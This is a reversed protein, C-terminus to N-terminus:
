VENHNIHDPIIMMEVLLPKLFSWKINHEEYVEMMDRIADWCNHCPSIVLEAGTAKIQDLKNKLGVNREKRYLGIGNLGGGGGCCFNHDGKPDMERFDEAIYSMIERTAMGLGHSRVYNCSDQLTCPMKLKKAPDIKIKGTRLMEAVWEVYHM